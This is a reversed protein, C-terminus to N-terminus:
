GIYKLNHSNATDQTLWRTGKVFAVQISPKETCATVKGIGLKESSVVEGLGINSIDIM